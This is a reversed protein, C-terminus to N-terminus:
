FSEGRATFNGKEAAMDSWTMKQIHGDFAAWLAIGRHRLAPQYSPNGGFVWQGRAGPRGYSGGTRRYEGSGPASNIEPQGCDGVLWTDAPRPMKSVQLASSFVSTKSREYRFISSCVGYGGWNSVWGNSDKAALEEQRVGPCRWVGTTISKPLYNLNRLAEHWAAGGAADVMNGNLAKVPSWAGQDLWPMQGFENEYALLSLAIQHLNSTCNAVRANEKVRGFVPFLM